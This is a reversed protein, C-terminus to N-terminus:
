ACPFDQVPELRHQLPWPCSVNRLVRNRKVENYVHTSFGVLIGAWIFLLISSSAYLKESAKWLKDEPSAFLAVLANLIGFGVFAVVALIACSVIAAYRVVRQLVTRSEAHCFLFGNGVEALTMVLLLDAVRCVLGGVLNMHFSVRFFVYWEVGTSDFDILLLASSITYLLLSSCVGLTLYLLCAGGGGGPFM